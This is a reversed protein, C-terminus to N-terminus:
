MQLKVGNHHVDYHHNKSEASFDSEGPLNTERFVAGM